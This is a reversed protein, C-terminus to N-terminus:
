AIYSRKANFNAYKEKIFIQYKTDMMDIAGNAKLIEYHNAFLHRLIKTCSMEYEYDCSIKFSTLIYELNMIQKEIMKITESYLQYYSSTLCAELLLLTDSIEFYEIGILLSYIDNAIHAFKAYSILAIIDNSVIKILEDTSITRLAVNNKISAYIFIECYYEIDDDSKIINHNKALEKEIIKEKLLKSNSYLSYQGNIM